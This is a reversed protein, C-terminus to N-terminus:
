HSQERVQVEAEIMFVRFDTAYAGNSQVKVAIGDSAATNTLVIKKRGLTKAADLTELGGPTYGQGGDLTPTTYVSTTFSSAGATNELTYNVYVRKWRKTGPKGRHFGTTFQPSPGSSNGDVLTQGDYSFNYGEIFFMSGLRSVYPNDREGFFL